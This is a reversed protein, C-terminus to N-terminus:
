YFDKLNANLSVFPAASVGKLCGNTVIMMAATRKQAHLMHGPFPCKVSEERMLYMM